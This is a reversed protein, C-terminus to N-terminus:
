RLTVKLCESGAEELACQPSPSVQLECWFRVSEKGLAWHWLFSFLVRDARGRAAPEADQGGVLRVLDTMCSGVVIVAAAAAEEQCQRGPEGSAAM